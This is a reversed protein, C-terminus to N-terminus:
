KQNEIGPSKWGNNNNPSLVPTTANGISVDSIVSLAEKYTQFKRMKEKSKYVEELSKEMIKIKFEFYIMSTYYFTIINIKIVPFIFLSLVVNKIIFFFFKIFVFVSNEFWYFLRKMPIVIYKKKKKLDFNLYYFTKNVM